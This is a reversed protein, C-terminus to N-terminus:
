KASLTSSSDNRAKLQLLNFLFAPLPLLAGVAKRCRPRGQPTDKAPAGLAQDIPRHDLSREVLGWACVAQRARGVLTQLLPM